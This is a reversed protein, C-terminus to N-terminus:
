RLAMAIFFAVYVGIALVVLIALTRRVAARRDPRDVSSDTM